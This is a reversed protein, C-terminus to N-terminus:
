TASKPKKAASVKQSSSQNVESSGATTPVDAAMSAAVLGLTLVAAGLLSGSKKMVGGVFIDAGGLLIKHAM